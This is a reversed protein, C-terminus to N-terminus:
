PMPSAGRECASAAAAMKGTALFYGHAMSVVVNEHAAAIAEPLDSGGSRAYAEIIPAFDSGPNIFLTDVGNSKLSRLIAEGASVMVTM